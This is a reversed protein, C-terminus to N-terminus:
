NGGKNLPARDKKNLPKPAAKKQGSVGAKELVGNKLLHAVESEQAEREDGPMYMRDGLHQRIVMFKM